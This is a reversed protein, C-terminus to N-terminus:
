PLLLVNTQSTPSSPPSSSESDYNDTGYDVITHGEDDDSTYAETDYLVIEKRKKRPPEGDDDSASSDTLGSHIPPSGQREEQEEQEEQQAWKSLIKDDNTEHEDADRALLDVRCAAQQGACLKQAM